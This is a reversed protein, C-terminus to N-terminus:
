RHEGNDACKGPDREATEEVAVLLATTPQTIV